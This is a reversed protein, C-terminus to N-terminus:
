PNFIMGRALTRASAASRMRRHNCTRVRHYDAGRPARDHENGLDLRQEGTGRATMAADIDPREEFFLDLPQLLQPRESWQSKGFAVHNGCCSGSRYKLWGSTTAKWPMSECNVVALLRDRSAAEAQDLRVAPFRERDAYAGPRFFVQSWNPPGAHLRM